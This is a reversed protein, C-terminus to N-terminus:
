FSVGFQATKKIEEIATDIKDIKIELDFNNDMFIESYKTLNDTVEKLTNGIAVIAGVESFGRPICSYKGDILCSYRLKVWEKISDPIKVHIMEGEELEHSCVIVEGAYKATYEPEVLQGTAGYYMIEPLNKYLVQYLESPPSPNRQSADTYYGLIKSVMRVENSIFGRCNTEKFYDSFRENITRLIKPLEDYQLTKCLYAIDKLEIGFISNKPYQGNITYSDYGIESLAKIQDQINFELLKSIDGYDHEIDNITDEVIDYSKSKFTERVNRFKSIKVYQNKNQKLYSRLADIGVKHATKVVPLGLEKLKNVFFWRDLELKESSRCGWVNKGISALHDQIDGFYLDFFCFLDIKNFDYGTKEDKGFLYEITTVNLMGFGPFKDKPDAFGKCDWRTYYFVKGFSKAIHEAMSHFQGNDVVCVQLKRLDIKEMIKM